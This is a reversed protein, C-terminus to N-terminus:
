PLQFSFRPDLEGIRSAIGALTRKCKASGSKNYATYADLFEDYLKGLHERTGIEDVECLLHYIEGATMQKRINFYKGRLQSLVTVYKEFGRSLKGMIDGIASNRRFTDIAYSQALNYYSKARGAYAEEPLGLHPISNPRSRNANRFIGLSILIYDANTKYIMFKTRPDGSSRVNEFLATDYPSLYKKILEHYNPDMLSTLLNALYINVDEDFFEDNSPFSVDMRSYLLNNMMYFLTREVPTAKDPGIPQYSTTVCM